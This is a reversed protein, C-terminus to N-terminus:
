LIGSRWGIGGRSHKRVSCEREMESGQIHKRLEVQTKMFDGAGRKERKWCAHRGSELGTPSRQSLGVNSEM